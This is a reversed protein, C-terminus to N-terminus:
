KKIVGIERFYKEAGPHLAVPIGKLANEVSLDKASTHIAYYDAKHDFLNRLLNYVFETSVGTYTWLATAFGYIPTDKDLGKYSNAKVVTRYYYPHESVVRAVVKEDVPVITAAHRTALETYSAVPYGGGVFGGDLSGDQIGEIVEKYNYYYPKFDNKTVGHAELFLLASTSVTSGPGGIGLRKGKADAFSKIGSSALTIFYQDSANVFAIARLNTFAKGSYEGEGKYARWADPSGFVAFCPKNAEERQMTRRVMDMTGTTAEHVLHADPMFKNTVAVIGAGLVYATGGAPPTYLPALEAAAGALTVHCLVMLMYVAAVLLM